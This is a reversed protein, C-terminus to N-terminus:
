GADLNSRSRELSDTAELVRKVIRGGIRETPETVENCALYAYCATTEGRNERHRSLSMQFKDAVNNLCPQGRVLDRRYYQVIM